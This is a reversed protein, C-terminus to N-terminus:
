KWILRILFSAGIAIGIIIGILLYKTKEKM